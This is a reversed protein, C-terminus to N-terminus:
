AAASRTRIDPVILWGASTLDAIIRETQSAPTAQQPDVLLCHLALADRIEIAAQSPFARDWYPRPRDGHQRATFGSSALYEVVRHAAAAPKAETPPTNMRYDDLAALIVARAADPIAPAPTTM